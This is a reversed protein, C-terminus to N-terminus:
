HQRLRHASSASHCEGCLVSRGVKPTFPVTDLKGCRDCVIEHRNASTAAGVGGALKKRTPRCGPCRQPQPMNRRYFTEQERENFIFVIQCHVCRLELDPM